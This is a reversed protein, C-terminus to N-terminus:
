RKDIELGLRFVKCRTETLATRHLLPSLCVSCLCDDDICDDKQNSKPTSFLTNIVGTIDLSLSRNKKLPTIQIVPYNTDPEIINNLIASSAVPEDELPETLEVDILESQTNANNEKSPTNQIVPCDIEFEANNGFLFSSLASEETVSETIDADINESRTVTIYELMSTIETLRFEDEVPCETIGSM